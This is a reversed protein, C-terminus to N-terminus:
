EESDGESLEPPSGSCGQLKFILSEGASYAGDKSSGDRDAERRPEYKGNQNGDANGRRDESRHGTDGPYQEGECEHCDNSGCHAESDRAARSSLCPSSCPQRVRPSRAATHDRLWRSRWLPLDGVERSVRAHFLRVSEESGCRGELVAYRCAMDHPCHSCGRREHEDVSPPAKHLPM